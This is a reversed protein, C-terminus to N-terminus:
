RCLTICEQRQQQELGHKDQERKHCGEERRKEKGARRKATEQSYVAMIILPPFPFVEQKKAVLM